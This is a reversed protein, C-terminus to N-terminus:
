NGSFYNGFIVFLIDSISQIGSRGKACIRLDMTTEKTVLPSSAAGGMIWHIATKVSTWWHSMM